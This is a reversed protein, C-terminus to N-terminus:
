KPTCPVPLLSVSLKERGFLFFFLANHCQLGIMKGLDMEDARVRKIKEVLDREILRWVASHRRRSM